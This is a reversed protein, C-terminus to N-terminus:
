YYQMTVCATTQFLYVIPLCGSWCIPCHWRTWGSSSYDRSSPTFFQPSVCWVGMRNVRSNENEKIKNSKPEQRLLSCKM